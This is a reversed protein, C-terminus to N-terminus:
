GERGEAQYVRVYDIELCAPFGADDIGQGGAWVGGVALNVILYMPRSFPWEGGGARRVASFNARGDIGMVIRDPTWLLQYRHFRNCTDPVESRATRHDGTRFNRSATHLSHHVVGPEMGVHEAIDIEGAGWAGDDDVPFLWIGPWTGRACPMKARVEFFGSSWSARGKTVLRASSYRQGGWDRFRKRDLTEAHAEIILRGDEVRANEIRAKAYYQAEGNYWGTRNRNTDYAWNARVPLGPVDFEDAWVLRYGPPAELTEPPATMVILSDSDQEPVCSALLVALMLGGMAGPRARGM